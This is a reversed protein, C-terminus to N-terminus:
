ICEHIFSGDDVDDEGAEDGAEDEDEEAEDYGEAFNASTRIVIAILERSDEPCLYNDVSDRGQLGGRLADSNSNIFRM